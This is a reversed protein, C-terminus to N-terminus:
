RLEFPPEDKYFTVSAIGDLPYFRTQNWKMIKSDARDKWNAKMLKNNHSVFEHIDLRVRITGDSNEIYEIVRAQMGADFPITDYEKHRLGDETFEIVKHLVNM